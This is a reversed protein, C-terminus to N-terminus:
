CAGGRSGGGDEYRGPRRTDSVLNPIKGTSDQAVVIPHILGISGMSQTLETIIAETLPRFREGVDITGLTFERVGVKV